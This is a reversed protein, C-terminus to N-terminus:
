TLSAIDETTLGAEVEKCYTEVDVPINKLDPQELLHLHCAPVKTLTSYLLQITQLEAGNVEVTNIHRATENNGKGFKYYVDMGPKFGDEGVIDDGCREVSAEIEDNYYEIATDFCFHM